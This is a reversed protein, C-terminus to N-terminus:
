NNKAKKAAFQKVTAEEKKAEMFGFIAYLGIVVNVTLVAALVSWCTNTFGDIHFYSHLLHHVGFFSAFPLTFMLFSFFLLYLLAFSAQKTHYPILADDDAPDDYEEEKEEIAVVPENLSSKKSKKGM